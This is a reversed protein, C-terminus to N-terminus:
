TALGTDAETGVSKVSQFIQEADGLLKDFNNQDAYLQVIVLDDIGLNIGMVMSVM